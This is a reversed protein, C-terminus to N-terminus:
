EQRSAYLAAIIIVGTVIMRVGEPMDLSIILASLLTLFLAGASSGLMAGEGGALSTGGVVTAAIPTLAYQSGAELDPLGLYAAFVLGALCAAISSAIYPLVGYTVVNIGSQRAAAENAGRALMSRGAVTQHLILSAILTALMWVIVSIPIPGLTGKGLIAFEPPISGSPVGGSYLVAGGSTVAFAGLTTIISPVRFITVFLGNAAGVLIAVGFCIALGLPINAAEGNMVTNALVLTLTILGGQSIDFGRSVTVFTQGLAAIGLVSALKAVSVFQSPRLLEPRLLAILVCLLILGGYVGLRLVGSVSFVPPFRTKTVTTSSAAVV